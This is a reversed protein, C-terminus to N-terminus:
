LDELRDELYRVTRRLDDPAAEDGAVARLRRRLVAMLGGRWHLSIPREGERLFARVDAPAELGDLARQINAPKPAEGDGEIQLALRGLHRALTGRFYASRATNRIQGALQSVPGDYRPYAKASTPREIDGTGTRRQALLVDAIVLALGFLLLGGWFLAHPVAGVYLRAVWTLYLFPWVLLDRVVGGAAHSLLLALPLTLLLILAGLLLRRRARSSM